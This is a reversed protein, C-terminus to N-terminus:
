NQRRQFIGKLRDLPIAEITNGQFGRVTKASVLSNYVAEEVAEVTALFLPDMQDNPLEESKIITSLTIRNKTSFAIIFDGSGNSM